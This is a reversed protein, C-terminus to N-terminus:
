LNKEGVFAIRKGSLAEVTQLPSDKHVFVIAKVPSGGRVLPAYGQEQHTVVTQLANVFILDPGTATVIDREFDCMEEYLKLEFNLGTDRSLREVFPIWLKHTDVPPWTPIVGLTFAKIEEAAGTASFFISLLLAIM